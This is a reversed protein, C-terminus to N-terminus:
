HTVASDAPALAIGTDITGASVRSRARTLGFTHATQTMWDYDFHLKDKLNFVM